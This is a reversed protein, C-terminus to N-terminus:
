ENMAMGLGLRHAAALEVYSLHVLFIFIRMCSFCLCHDFSIYINHANKHLACRVGLILAAERRTM